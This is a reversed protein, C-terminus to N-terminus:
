KLFVLSEEEFCFHGSCYPKGEVLIIAQDAHFYNLITNALSHLVFSEGLSGYGIEEYEKTMDITVYQHAKDITIKKIRAKNPIGKIFTGKQRPNMKLVRTLFDEDTEKFFREITYEECMMQSHDFDGWYLQVKEDVQEESQIKLNQAAMVYTNCEMTMLLFACIIIGAKVISKWRM